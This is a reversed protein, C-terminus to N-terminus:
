RCADDFSDVADLGPGPGRQQGPDGQQGATACSRRFFQRHGRPPPMPCCPPSPRTPISPVPTSSRPAGQCRHCPRRAFASCPPSTSMSRVCGNKMASTRSRSTPCRTPRTTSPIDIRGFQEVTRRVLEHCHAKQALDGAILLCQRGAQEVWRATERADEDENLYAIAVDAGERAFAIAVARGIGSDAGTILAIKGTLRGHGTYSQEGCDPYPDMRSQSGPVQQPQSPFPPTPYDRMITAGARRHTELNSLGLWQFNTALTRHRSLHHRTRCPHRRVVGELASLATQTSAHGARLEGPDAGGCHGAVCTCPTWRHALGKCAVPALLPQFLNGDSVAAKPSREIGLRTLWGTFQALRPVLHSALHALRAASGVTTHARPSVACAVMAKAVLAPDYVPGPPKLAHGTYNGGDRFGPTDM